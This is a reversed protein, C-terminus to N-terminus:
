KMRYPLNKAVQNILQTSLHHPTDMQNNPRQSLNTAWLMEGSAADFLKVNTEVGDNNRNPPMMQPSRMDIQTIRIALDGAIVADVGLLKAIDSKNQRAIDELKIGNESLVKNTRTFDQFAIEYRGKQVQRAVSTFLEKQADLSAEREQKSFFRQKKPENSRNNLNEFQVDFPLIAIRQHTNKVRSFNESLFDKSSACASLIVAVFIVAILYKNIQITKM